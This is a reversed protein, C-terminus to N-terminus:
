SGITGTAGNSVIMGLVNASPDLAFAQNYFIQGLLSSQNPITTSWVATGTLNQLVVLLDNSTLAACGPMGIFGLDLPLQAQGWKTNSAALSLFTTRGALLNKIEAAFPTGIRPTLGSQAALSPVGAAGACGFGFSTYSSPSRVQWEWTEDTPAFMPAGGFLLTRGRGSDYCMAHSHRASPSRTPQLQTWTKGDYEWTDALQTSNLGGYLLVTGRRADFTMAHAYRAPPSQTPAVQLWDSGNFEWTDGRAFSGDYGGFLVTRKRVPDYAIAASDRNSPDKTTVVSTWATGDFEYLGAGRWPGNSGGFVQVKGRGSDFTMAVNRAHGPQLGLVRKTWSSGDWELTEPWDTLVVTKKRVTDYAMAYSFRVPLTGASPKQVWDTGDFEWTSSIGNREGALVAVQRQSDFAMCPQVLATPNTNPSRQSWEAQASMVACVFFPALQGVHM